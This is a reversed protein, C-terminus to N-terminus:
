ILKVKVAMKSSESVKQCIDTPRRLENVARQSRTCVDSADMQKKLWEPKSWCPKTSLVPLDRMESLNAPRKSNNGVSQAHIRVRQMNTHIQLRDTQGAHWRTSGYTIQPKPGTPCTSIHRQTNGATNTHDAIGHLDRCMNLTGARSRLEVQDHRGAEVLLNQTKKVNRCTSITKTTDVATNKGNYTGSKDRGM